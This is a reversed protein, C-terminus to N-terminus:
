HSWLSKFPRSSTISTTQPGKLPRQPDLAFQCHTSQLYLWLYMSTSVLQSHMRIPMPNPCITLVYPDVDSQRGVAIRSRCGSTSSNTLINDGTYASKYAGRMHGSLSLSVYTSLALYLSLRIILESFAYWCDSCQASKQAPGQFISEAALM